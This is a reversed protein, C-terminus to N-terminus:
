RVKALQRSVFGLEREDDCVAVVSILMNEGEDILRPCQAPTLTYTHLACPIIVGALQILRRAVALTTSSYDAIGGVIM